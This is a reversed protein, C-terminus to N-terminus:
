IKKIIRFRSIVRGVEKMFQSLDLPVGPAYRMMFVHKDTNGLITDATGAGAYKEMYLKWSDPTFVFITFMVAYPAAVKGSQWDQSRTPLCVHLVRVRLDAAIYENSGIVRYSQWNEPFTIEIGFESNTYRLQQAKIDADSACGGYSLVTCLFLTLLFMTLRM